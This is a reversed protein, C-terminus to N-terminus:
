NLFRSIKVFPPRKDRGSVVNIDQDDPSTDGPDTGSVSELFSTWGLRERDDLSSRRDAPRPVQEPKRADPRVRVHEREAIRKARPRPRLHDDAPARDPLVHLRGRALVADITPDAEVTANHACSSEYPPADTLHAANITGENSAYPSTPRTAQAPPRRADNEVDTLRM